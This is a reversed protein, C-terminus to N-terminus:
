VFYRPTPQVGFWALGQGLSLACVWVERVRGWMESAQLGLVWIGFTCKAFYGKCCVSGFCGMIRDHERYGQPGWFGAGGIQLFELLLVIEQAM